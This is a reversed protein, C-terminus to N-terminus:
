LDISPKSALQESPFLASQPPLVTVSTKAMPPDSDDFFVGGSESFESTLMEEPDILSASYRSTFQTNAKYHVFNGPFAYWAFTFIIGILGSLITISRVIGKAQLKSRSDYPSPIMTEKFFQMIPSSEDMVNAVEEEDDDDIRMYGTPRPDPDLQRNSTLMKKEVASPVETKQIYKDERGLAKVFDFPVVGQQVDLMTDDRSNQTEDGNAEDRVTGLSISKRWAFRKLNFCNKWCDICSSAIVFLICISLFSM